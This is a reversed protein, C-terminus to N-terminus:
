EVTRPFSSRWSYPSSWRLKAFSMRRMKMFAQLYLQFGSWSNWMAARWLRCAKSVFKERISFPEEWASWGREPPADEAGALFRGRAFLRGPEVPPAGASGLFGRTSCLSSHSRVIFSRASYRVERPPEAEITSPHYTRVSYRLSPMVLPVYSLYKKVGLPLRNRDFASIARKKSRVIAGAGRAFITSGFCSSFCVAFSCFSACRSCSLVWADISLSLARSYARRYGIASSFSGMSGGGLSGRPLRGAGLTGGARPTRGAECVPLKSCAQSKM